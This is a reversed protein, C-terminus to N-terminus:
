MLALARKCPFKRSPCTCKSGPDSGTDACVRYPNAGSGQCEGWILEGARGRADWKAPKLLGAAAKLASQDPAIAEIASRSLAVAAGGRAVVRPKSTQVQQRCPARQAARGAGSKASRMASRGSFPKAIAGAM